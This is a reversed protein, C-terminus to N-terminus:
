VNEELVMIIYVHVRIMVLMKTVIVIVKVVVGVHGVMKMLGNIGNVHRNMNIIIIRAILHFFM